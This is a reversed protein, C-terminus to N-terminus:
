SGAENRDKLSGVGKDCNLNEVDICYKGGFWNALDIYSCRRSCFPKYLDFTLRNCVPCTNTGEKANKLKRNM